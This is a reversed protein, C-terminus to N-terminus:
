VRARELRVYDPLPDGILPRAYRLCAETPYNGAEDKGVKVVMEDQANRASVYELWDRPSPNVIAHVENAPIYLMDGAALSLMNSLDDGSYVLANGHIMYAATECNAHYHAVSRAGPPIRYYAMFISNTGATEGSLAYNGVIGEPSALEGPQARIAKM